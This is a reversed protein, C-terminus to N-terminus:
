AIRVFETANGPMCYGLCKWTGSLATANTHGTHDSPKLNSGSITDGYLLTNPSASRGFLICGVDSISRASHMVYGGGVALDRQIYSVKGIRAELVGNEVFRMGFQSEWNVYDGSAFGLAEVGNVSYGGMALSGSMTDGVKNVYRSDHTHGVQSFRTDSQTKTWYRTDHDHVVPAFRGDSETETYYRDDHTHVTPAAGLNTRAEAATAGGTGGVAIGKVSDAHTKIDAMMERFADNINGPPCGEAVNM